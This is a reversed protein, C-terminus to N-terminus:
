MAMIIPRQPPWIYIYGNQHAFIFGMKAMRIPTYPPGMVDMGISM